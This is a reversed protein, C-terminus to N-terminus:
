TIRTWGAVRAAYAEVDIAAVTGVRQLRAFLDLFLRVLAHEPGCVDVSDLGSDSWSAAFTGATVACGHNLRESTNLGRLANVLPEGLTTWASGTTLIGGVIPIPKKGLTSGDAQPILVSTRHLNRVSAVKAGAYAIHEKSLDQKVEYVAYVSEAPVYLCEGLRFLLPSYQRDYIVVDLQHSIGGLSDVIFAKSVCYRSPLHSSLLNRWDGEAADGLTGPHKIIARAIRLSAELQAQMSGFLEDIDVSM